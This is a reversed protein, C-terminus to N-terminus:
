AWMSFLIRQRESAVSHSVFFTQLTLLTIGWEYVEPFRLQPNPLLGNDAACELWFAPFKPTVLIEWLVSSCSM